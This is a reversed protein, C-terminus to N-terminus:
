QVNRETPRPGYSCWCLSAIGVQCRTTHQLARTPTEMEAVPRDAPTMENSVRYLTDEQTNLDAHSDADDDAFTIADFDIEIIDRVKMVTQTHVCNSANTVNLHGPIPSVTPAGRSHVDATVTVM